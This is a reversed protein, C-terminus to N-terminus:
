MYHNYFHAKEHLKDKLAKEEIKAGEPARRNPQRKM